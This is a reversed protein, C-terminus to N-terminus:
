SYCFGLQLLKSVFHTNAQTFFHIPLCDLSSSEVISDSAKQRQEARHSKDCDLSAALARVMVDGNWAASLLFLLIVFLSLERRKM